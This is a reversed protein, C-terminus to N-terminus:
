EKSKVWIRRMGMARGAAELTANHPRKTKGNFWNRMTGQAPGGDREVHSLSKGNAFKKVEASAPDAGRFFYARYTKM